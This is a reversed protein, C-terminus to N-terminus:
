ARSGPLSRALANVLTSKGTGPAGTIGIVHAQGTHPYLASWCPVRRPDATKWRRSPGRWRGGTARGAIVTSATGMLDATRGGARRIFDIIDQTSTGPGFVGKM